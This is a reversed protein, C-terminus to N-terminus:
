IVFENRERAKELGGSNGLVPLATRLDWAARGATSFGATVELSCQGRSAESVNPFWVNVATNWACKPLKFDKARM